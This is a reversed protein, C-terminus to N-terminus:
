DYRIATLREVISVVSYLVLVIAIFMNILDVSTVLHHQPVGFIERAREVKFAYAGFMVSVILFLVRTSMPLPAAVETSLKDSAHSQIRATTMEEIKRCSELIKNRHPDERDCKLAKASILKAYHRFLICADTFDKMFWMIKATEGRRMKVVGTFVGHNNYCAELTGIAMVQPIACFSFIAPDNLKSMYELCQDVHSLANAIMHNLCQVAKKENVEEKFEEL